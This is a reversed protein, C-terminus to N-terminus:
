RFSYKGSSSSYYVAGGVGGTGGVGQTGHKDYAVNSDFTCNAINIAQIGEIM